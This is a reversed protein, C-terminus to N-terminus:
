GALSLRRAEEEAAAQLGPSGNVLQHVEGARDWDPHQIEVVDGAAIRALEVLSIARIVRNGAAVSRAPCEALEALITRMEAVAARFEGLIESWHALPLIIERHSNDRRSKWRRPPMAPARAEDHWVLGATPGSLRAMRAAAQWWCRDAIALNRDISERYGRSPPILEGLSAVHRGVRRFRTALSSWRDLSWDAPPTRRAM